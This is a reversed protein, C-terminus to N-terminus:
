YFCFNVIHANNAIAISQLLIVCLVSQALYSTHTICHCMSHQPQSKFLGCFNYVFHPEKFNLTLAKYDNISELSKIVNEFLMILLENVNVLLGNLEVHGLIIQLHSIM